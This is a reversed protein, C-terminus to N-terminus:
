ADHGETSLSTLAQAICDVLSIRNTSHLITDCSWIEEVGTAQIKQLADGVFLAHTIMVHISAPRYPALELITAVLTRGTSAIDDVLVAHRGQYDAAPLSVKVDNDGFRQKNAVHYELTNRRAISAVWQESEEDPGILIPNELRQNLYHSMANSASLLVANKVPVADQLRGVRHLHPDVTVLEDFHCALLRGVIRQSVAEGPSFARDQRMYCLYPAILCLRDAGLERATEAALVLEVLKENPHDLSRYILVHAPLAEPLHIRSEGDPFRHVDIAAFDLGAASAIKIGEQRYEPFCLLLGTNCDSYTL